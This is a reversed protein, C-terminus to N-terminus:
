ELLEKDVELGVMDAYTYLENITIDGAHYLVYCTSLLEEAALYGDDYEQFLAKVEDSADQEVSYDAIVSGTTSFYRTAATVCIIVIALAAVIAAIIVVIRQRQSLPESTAKQGATGPQAGSKADAASTEAMTTDHAM